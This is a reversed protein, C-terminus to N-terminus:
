GSGGRALKQALAFTVAFLGQFVLWPPLIAIRELRTGERYGAAYWAQVRGFCLAVRMM